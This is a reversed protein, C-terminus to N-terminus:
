STAVGPTFNYGVRQITQIFLPQKPDSELKQRLSAVHVDVTRTFIKANYGWVDTLLQERSLTVGANDIFYKLLQFERISLNVPEGDRTVEARSEDAVVNCGHCVQVRQVDM